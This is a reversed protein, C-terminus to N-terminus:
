AKIIPNTHGSWQSIVDGRGLIDDFFCPNGGLCIRSLQGEDMGHDVDIIYKLCLNPPYLGVWPLGYNRPLKEVVELVPNFAIFTAAKDILVPNYYKIAHYFIELPHDHVM